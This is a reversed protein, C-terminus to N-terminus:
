APFYYTKDGIIFKRDMIRPWLYDTPLDANWEEFFRLLKAREETNLESLDISESLDNELNYLHLWDDRTSMILKWKKYRIARIHDTRWYIKDHPESTNEGKIFPLLNTGDLLHEEPLKIGCAAITTAFIDLSSVPFNYVEGMPLHGKWQMMFPVNVGGEFHTIKGGKLPGNETAGTYAAAGNDSIFYVITNEELGQEKLTKMVDGVADDLAKIMALYVRKNKDKIHSFQDYYNQPAQFPVHPANFSLYLFFNSDKHTTIFNKARDRIAFTLYDNEQVIVNNERIAANDNRKMNWQHHASFDDQIFNVFGPTKKAPTYLSFAGYFGYQYGFGRHNPQHEEGHGLHWKGVIGTSYGSAQLIEALNTEGTPIGQHEMEWPSPYSPPTMVEWDGIKKSNKGAAYELKNTPYFEMPQTEFGYRQQYKGTLIGARSPACIPATVYADKFRIGNQGIADINPTEISTAGYASLEYKGLDDAMILIINPKGQGSKKQISALLEAKKADASPDSVINWKKSMTSVICSSVGLLILVPYLVKKQM